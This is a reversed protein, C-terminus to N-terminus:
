IRRSTIFKETKEKKVLMKKLRLGQKALFNLQTKTLFIWYKKPYDIKQVIYHLELIKPKNQYNM